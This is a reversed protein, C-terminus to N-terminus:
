QTGALGVFEAHLVQACSASRRMAWVQDRECGLYKILMSGPANQPGNPRFATPNPRTQGKRLLWANGATAGRNHGITESYRADLLCRTGGADSVRTSQIRLDACRACASECSRWLRRGRPLSGASGAWAVSGQGSTTGKPIRGPVGGVCPCTPPPCACPPCAGRFTPGFCEGWGHMCHRMRYQLCASPSM